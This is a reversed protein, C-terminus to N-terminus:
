EVVTVSITLASKESLAEGVLRVILRPRDVVYEIVSVASLPKAPDTAKLTLPAGPPDEVLKLGFGAAVEEVSVTLVPPPVGLPAYVSVILPVPPPLVCVTVTLSTTFQPRPDGEGRMPLSIM